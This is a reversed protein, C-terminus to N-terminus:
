EARGALREVRSLFGETVLVWIAQRCQPLDGPDFDDDGMQWRTVDLSQRLSEVLRGLRRIDVSSLAGANCIGRRLHREAVSSTDQAQRLARWSDRDTSPPMEFPREWLGLLWSFAQSSDRGQLLRAVQLDVFDEGRQAFQSLAAWSFRRGAKHLYALLEGVTSADLDPFTRLLEFLPRGGDAAIWTTALLARLKPDSETLARERLAAPFNVEAGGLLQEAAESRVDFNSDASADEIQAFPIRSRGIRNLKLIELRVRPSSDIRFRESLFTEVAPDNSRHAGALYRCASARVDDDPDVEALSRVLDLEGHGALIVLLLSRVGPTPSGEVEIALEPNAGSGLKLALAWGAWAREAPDGSHLLIRLGDSPLKRVAEFDPYTM